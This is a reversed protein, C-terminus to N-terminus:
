VRVGSAYYGVVVDNEIVPKYVANYTVGYITVEGRYTTKADLAAIIAQNSLSDGIETQGSPDVLSTLVRVYAGNNTSRVGYTAFIRSSRKDLFRQVMNVRWRLRSVITQAVDAQADAHGIWQLSLLIVVAVLFIRHM